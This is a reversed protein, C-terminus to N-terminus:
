VESLGKYGGYECLKEYAHIMNKLWGLSDIDPEARICNILHMDVFKALSYAEYKTLDM